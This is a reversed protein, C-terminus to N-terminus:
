GPPEGIVAVGAPCGAYTRKVILSGNPADSMVLASTTMLFEGPALPETTNATVTGLGTGAPRSDIVLVAKMASSPVCPASTLGALLADESLVGTRVAGSRNMLLLSPPVDVSAPPM